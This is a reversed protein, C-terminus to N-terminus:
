HLTREFKVEWHGKPINLCFQEDGLSSCLYLKGSKEEWFLNQSMLSLSDAVSLKKLEQHPIHRPLIERAANKVAELAQDTITVDEFDIPRWVGGQSNLQAQFRSENERHQVSTNM